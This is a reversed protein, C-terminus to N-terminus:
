AKTTYVADLYKCIEAAEFMEVGTNADRLFPVQFQVGTQEMMVDRNASGRACPVMVHPLMLSCMKERVVKVFPSADYGWLELAKRETNEPRAAPDPTAGALGRFMTAYSGTVTSTPERLSFPVEAKGPGYTEFLYDVIDDSEFMEKESNPDILYPVTMRGTREALQRSFGSRAGPCPRLECTVDLMSLAERVKRCFPSGEYEYLILPQEPRKLKGDTALSGDRFKLPGLQLAYKGKDGDGALGPRWGVVFVPLFRILLALSGGVLAPLLESSTVTLPKPEPPSFGEPPKLEPQAARRQHLGRAQPGAHGTLVGGSSGAQFGQRAVFAGGGCSLAFSSLMALVCAAAAAAHARQRRPPPM